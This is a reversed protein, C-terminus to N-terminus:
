FVCVMNRLLLVKTPCGELEFFKVKQEPKSARRDAKKSGDANEPPPLRPVEGGETMAASAVKSTLKGGEDYEFIDDLGYDQLTYLKRKEQQIKLLLNEEAKLDEDSMKKFDMKESVLQAQHLPQINTKLHKEEVDEQLDEGQSSRSGQVKGEM